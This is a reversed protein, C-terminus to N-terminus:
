DAPRRIEPRFSGFFHETFVELLRLNRLRSVDLAVPVGWTSYLSLEELTTLAGLRSPMDAAFRAASYLSLGTLDPMSSLVQPVTTFDNGTGNIRLRRLKPFNALLADVNADTVSRGRVYLDRVHSFDASLAPIPDDCVLDLMRYRSHEGALPSNRWSQKLNQAVAAKGGLVSELMSGAIPEGVGVDHSGTVQHAADEVPAQGAQGLLGARGLGRGGARGGQV